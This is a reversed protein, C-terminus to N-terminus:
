GINNLKIIKKLKSNVTNVLRGYVSQANQETVTIVLQINLTGDEEGPVTQELTCVITVSDYYRSLYEYFRSQIEDILASKDNGSKEIMRPISTITGPYLYTQNYDAVFAHAILSDFKNASDYVFGLTSLTPVPTVKNALSNETAM